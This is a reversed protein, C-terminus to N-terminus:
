LGWLRWERENEKNQKRNWKSGESFPWPALNPIFCTLVNIFKNTDELKEIGKDNRRREKKWESKWPEIPMYGEFVNLIMPRAAMRTCARGAGCTDRPRKSSTLMVSSRMMKSEGANGSGVFGAFVMTARWDKTERRDTSRPTTAVAKVAARDARPISTPSLMLRRCCLTLNIPAIPRGPFAASIVTGPHEDDITVPSLELKGSKPSAEFLCDNPFHLPPFSSVAVAFSPIKSELFIEPEIKEDGSEPKPTMEPSRIGRLCVSWPSVFPWIDVIRDLYGVNEVFDGQEFGGEEFLRFGNGPHWFEICGKGLRQVLRLKNVDGPGGELKIGEQVVKEVGSIGRCFSRNKSLVESDDIRRLCDTEQCVPVLVRFGKLSSSDVLDFGHIGVLLPQRNAIRRLLVRFNIPFRVNRLKM